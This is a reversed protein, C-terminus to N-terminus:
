AKMDDAEFLLRDVILGFFPTEGSFHWGLHEGCAACIALRWRYGQFWSYKATAEGIVTCGPAERYCTFSYSFGAPNVRVHTDQGDVSLAMAKSTIPFHCPRCLIRGRHKKDADIGAEREKRRAAPRLRSDFLYWQIAFEMANGGVAKTDGVRGRLPPPLNKLTGDPITFIKEGDPSPM